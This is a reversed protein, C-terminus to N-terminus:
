FWSSVASHSSQRVAYRWQSQGVRGFVAEPSSPAITWMGCEIEEELQGAFWSCQGMCLRWSIPVCDNLMKQIMAYDSSLFVGDTVPLTNDSHWDDSHIMLAAHEAVVGGRFVRHNDFLSNYEYGAQEFLYGVSMPSAHNIIIGHAGIDKHHQYIFIVSQEFLDGKLLPNAVLLKGSLGQSSLACIQHM